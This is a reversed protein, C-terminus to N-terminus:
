TLVSLRGRQWKKLWNEIPDFDRRGQGHPDVSRAGPEAAAGGGRALAVLLEGLANLKADDLTLVDAFRLEGESNWLDWAARFLVQEGSSLTGCGEERLDIAQETPGEETWLQKRFTQDLLMACVRARQRDDRFM